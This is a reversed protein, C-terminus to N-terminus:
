YMESRSLVIEIWEENNPNTLFSKVDVAYMDYWFGNSNMLISFLEVDNWDSARIFFRFARYEFSRPPFSFSAGVINKGDRYDTQIALSANGQIKCYDDYYVYGTQYYNKWGNEMSSIEEYDCQSPYLPTRSSTADVSTHAFSLVMTFSLFLLLARRVFITAM